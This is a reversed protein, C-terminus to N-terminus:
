NPHSLDSLSPIRDIVPIGANAFAQGASAIDSNIGDMDGGSVDGSEVKDTVNGLSGQANDLPGVLRCLVGSYLAEEKAVELEHLTFAVALGAEALNKVRGSTGHAFGGTKFRQYIFHHFAGFALGAHLVFKVRDFADRGAQHCTDSSAAASATASTAASTSPDGAAGPSGPQCGTLTLLAASALALVTSTRATRGTTRDAM